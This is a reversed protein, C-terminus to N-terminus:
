ERGDELALWRDLEPAEGPPPREMVPATTESFGLKAYLSAASSTRLMWRLGAHPGRDVIERSLELGLGRGRYSDLVYVDMLYAFAVGDSVCRAFGIMRPGDYLGVVRASDRISREVEDRTRESAWYSEERLFRTLEDVDVRAPDDDLELGGALTRVM